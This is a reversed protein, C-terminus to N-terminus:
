DHVKFTKVIKKREPDDKYNGWDILSLVYNNVKFPFVLSAIEIEEIEKQYKIYLPLEADLNPIIAEINDKELINQLRNKLEDFGLSPYPMLYTKKVIDMYVGPENPDYSLGVTEHKSNLSKIVPIGPAPNDTNNLGSIAIKM